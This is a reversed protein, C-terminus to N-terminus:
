IKKPEEKKNLVTAKSATTTVAVVMTRPYTIPTPAIYSAPKVAVYTPPSSPTVIGSAAILTSTQGLFSATTIAKPKCKKPKTTTVTETLTFSVTKMLTNYRTVTQLNEITKTVTITKYITNTRQPPCTETTQALPAVQSSVSSTTACTVISPVVVSSPKVAATNTVPIQPVYSASSGAALSNPAVAVASSPPTPAYASVCGGVILIRVLLIM